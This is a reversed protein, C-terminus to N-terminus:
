AIGAAQWVQGYTYWCLLGVFAVVLAPAVLWKEVPGGTRFGTISYRRPSIPWLLPCGEKTLMDGVIHVACGLGVATPLVNGVDVGVVYVITVGVAVAVANVAVTAANSFPVQVGCARMGIGWLLWLTFAEAFGGFSCVLSTLAVAAAIGLLSHTGNRHGGSVKGVVWALTNTVPGLSRSITAGRQDLDPLMAGGAAVGVGVAVQGPTYQSTAGVLPAIALFTVAGSYAHTTGM